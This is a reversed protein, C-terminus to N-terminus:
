KLLKFIFIFIAFIPYFGDVYLSFRVGGPIIRKSFLFYYFIIHLPFFTLLLINKLPFLLFMLVILTICFLLSVKFLFISSKLGFYIPITEKGVMRDGQIDKLDFVIARCLFVFFFFFFTLFSILLDPKESISFNFITTYISWASSTFIDKSCPIQLLPSPFLYLMGLIISFFTFIGHYISSFFSLFLSIFLFIISLTKLYKKNKEIFIQQAPENIEQARKESISNLTHFSYLFMPGIFYSQIPIKFNFIKSIIFIISFSSLFILLNSRTIFALTKWMLKWIGKARLEILKELVRNILWNPTSAGATVGIKKYEKLEEPIFNEDELLFAPKGEKEIIEKLRRTNASINGGVVVMADVKKALRKAEEQRASTADCITEIVELDPNKEKLIKSIEYYEKESFTTQALLVAEGKIKLKKAEEISSICISGEGAYGIIGKTEAHEKDGVLIVVKGENKAKKAQAQVKAVRPCTLNIIKCKKEKLKEIVDPPVGHARIIVTEGEKIEEIKKNEIGLKKLIELVQPNHILPGLTCINNEGGYRLKLTEEIAKRVGMCFGARKSVIIAM